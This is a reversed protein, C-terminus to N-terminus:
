IFYYGIFLSFDKKLRMKDVYIQNLYEKKLKLEDKSYQGSLLCEKYKNKENLFKYTSFFFNASKRLMLDKIDFVDADESAKIESENMKLYNQLTMMILSIIVTGLIASFFTVFRGLNTKPYYQGYGVSTMTILVTWLTNLFQSYDPMPNGYIPGSNMFTTSENTLNMSHVVFLFNPDNISNYNEGTISEDKMPGEIIQLQFSLSCLLTICFILISLLPSQMLLCRVIFLSNLRKGLMALVSRTRNNYYRSVSLYYEIFIYVRILTLFILFDNVDYKVSRNYFYPNTTHSNSYQHFYLNPHLLALAIEAMLPFFYKPNIITSNFKMEGSAKQLELM